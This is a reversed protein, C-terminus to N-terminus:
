RFREREAKNRQDREDAESGTRANQEDKYGEALLPAILAARRHCKVRLFFIYCNWHNVQLNDAGRAARRRRHAVEERFAASL